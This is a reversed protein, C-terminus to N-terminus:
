KRYDSPKKGTKRKFAGSFYHEDCFGLRYAIEKVSFSTGELMAAAKEMKIRMYYEYPTIGYNKKFIRIAQAPSKYILRALEDLVLPEYLHMDIYNKMQVADKAYVNVKDDHQHLFQILEHFIIATRNSIEAPSIDTRVLERHIKEIYPMSNCHFVASNKLNYIEALTKMMVGGANFWIKIWPDHSSSFYNHDDGPFLIYTDGAHPYFTKGNSIVTGSGSIIYEVCGIASNPRSIQYSGDCYSIGALDIYFPLQRDFVAFNIFEEKM